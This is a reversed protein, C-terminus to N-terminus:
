GAPRRKKAGTRAAIWGLAGVGVAVLALAGVLTGHEVAWLAPSRASARDDFRGHTAHLGEVPAFLNDPRGSDIPEGTHQGDYTTRALYHDLWGPALKNGLVAAITPLGVLLERRPRDAADLIACAAVEPQFIPPVPM